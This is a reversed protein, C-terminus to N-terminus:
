CSVHRLFLGLIGLLSYLSISIQARGNSVFVRLAPKFGKTVRTDLRVEGEPTPTKYELKMIAERLLLCSECGEDAANTIAQITTSFASAESSLYEFNLDACGKCANELSWVSPSCSGRHPLAKVNISQESM